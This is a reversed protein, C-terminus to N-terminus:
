IAAKRFERNQFFFQGINCSTDRVSALTRPHAKIKIFLRINAASEKSFRDTKTASFATMHIDVFFIWPTYEQLRTGSNNSAFRQEWPGNAWCPPHANEVHLFAAISEM